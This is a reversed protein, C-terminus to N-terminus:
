VQNQDANTTAEPEEILEKYFSKLAILKLKYEEQEDIKESMM